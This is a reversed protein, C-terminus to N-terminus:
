RNHGGGITEGSEGRGHYCSHYFSFARCKERRAKTVKMTYYLATQQHSTQTVCHLHCLGPSFFAPGKRKIVGAVMPTTLGAFCDAAFVVASNDARNVSASCRSSM